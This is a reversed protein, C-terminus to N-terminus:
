RKYTGAKQTSLMLLSSEKQGTSHQRIHSSHILSDFTLKFMLSQFHDSRIPMRCFAPSLIVLLNNTGASHFINPGKIFSVSWVHQLTYSSSCTHLSEKGPPAPTDLWRHRLQGVCSAVGDRLWQESQGISCDGARQHFAPEHILNNLMLSLPNSKCHLRETVHRRIWLSHRIFSSKERQCQPPRRLSSQRRGENPSLSAAASRINTLTM